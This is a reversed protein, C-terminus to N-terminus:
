YGYYKLLDEESIPIQAARLEDKRMKWLKKIIAKGNGYHIQNHCESCLSVVNAEVDLSWDFDEHFQLPILHHPEMYRITSNKRLFSKHNKNYECTNEARKLANVSVSKKRPYIKKGSKTTKLSEKTVAVATYANKSGLLDLDEIENIIKTDDELYEESRVQSLLVPKDKVIEWDPLENIVVFNKSFDIEYQHKGKIPFPSGNFNIEVEGGNIKFVYKGVVSGQKGEIHYESLNPQTATGNSVKIGALAEFKKEDLLGKNTNIGYVSVSFAKKLYGILYEHVSTGREVKELIIQDGIQLDYQNKFKRISAIRYPTKTGMYETMYLEYKKGSNVDIFQQKKKTGEFFQEVEKVKGKEIPPESGHGNKGAVDTSTLRRIITTTKM